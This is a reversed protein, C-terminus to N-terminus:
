DKRYASRAFDDYPSPQVTASLRVFGAEAASSDQVGDHEGWVLTVETGVEAYRPALLAISLVTNGHAATATYYAIGALEGDVEVRYRGYSHVFGISPTGWVSAADSAAVVLTVKRRLEATDVLALAAKGIFDHEFSILRGYGLEHPWNYFDDIDPSFFSGKLPNKGEYSLAPLWERYSRPTPLDYIAPTPMPVWGSELANLSYALAGVQVLGFNEGQELFADKVLDAFQWPGIFEYGPQGQMGHRLATFQAGHLEVAIAHFFKVKPLPAGFVADVLEIANPGQIQYRFLSEPRANDGAWSVPLVHRLDVDYDGTEGQYQLWSHSPRVANYVFREPAERTLIGDGIFHGSENVAVAQKAQGVDASSFDNVFVESLIRAADPGEVYLSDIHRSQDSFAVTEYPATQERRWGVFETPLDPQWTPAGPRWLLKVPSGAEDIAQQLNQESM